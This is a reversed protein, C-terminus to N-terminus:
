LSLERRVSVGDDYGRCYDGNDPRNCGVDDVGHVFGDIYDKGYRANVAVWFECSHNDDYVIGQALGVAVAPCCQVVTDIEEGTRIDAHSIPKLGTKEYAAVVEDCTIRKM